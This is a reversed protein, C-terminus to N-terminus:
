LVVQLINHAQLENLFEDIDNGAEESSVDFRQLLGSLLQERSAKSQLMEWLCVGTKNISIIGCFDAVGEGVPVIIHKGALERLIYNPSVTYVKQSM